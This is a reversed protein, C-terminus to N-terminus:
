FINDLLLFIQNEGKDDLGRAYGFRITAYAYYGLVLDLRLEAGVSKVTDGVEFGTEWANAADFFVAGHLKQFFLPLTYIGRNIDWLNFRYESKLMVFRDGGIAFSPYGRLYVGFQRENYLLNSV